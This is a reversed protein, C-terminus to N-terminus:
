RQNGPSQRAHNNEEQSTFYLLRTLIWSPQNTCMGNGCAKYRPSDPCTAPNSIKKLYAAVQNYSKGKPPKKHAYEAMIANFTDFIDVFESVLEPTPEGDADFFRRLLTPITYHHPLGMLRECETPTLRRVIFQPNGDAACSSAVTPEKATGLTPCLEPEDGLSRSNASQERKFGISTICGNEGGPSKRLTMSLEKQPQADLMMGSAVPNIGYTFLTQDQVAAALTCSLNETIMPGAGGGSKSLRHPPTQPHMSTAPDNM